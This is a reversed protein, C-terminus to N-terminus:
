GGFLLADAEALTEAAHRHLNEDATMARHDCCGDLTVNISYRLPRMAGLTACLDKAVSAHSVRLPAPASVRGRGTWAEGTVGRSGTSSASSSVNGALSAGVKLPAWAPAGGPWARRAHQDVDRRPRGVLAVEPRRQRPEVAADGDSERVPSASRGRGGRARVHDDGRREGVVLEARAGRRRQSLETAAPSSSITVGASSARPTAIVFALPTCPGFM